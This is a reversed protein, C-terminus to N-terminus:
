YHSTMGAYRFRVLASDHLSARYIPSSAPIRNTRWPNLLRDRPHKEPIESGDTGLRKKRNPSSHERERCRGSPVPLNATFLLAASSVGGQRPVFHSERHPKTELCLKCVGETMVRM